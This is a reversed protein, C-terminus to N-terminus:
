AIEAAQRATAATPELSSEQAPMGCFAEYDILADISPHDGCLPCAGRRSLRVQRFAMDMGEFLVLRGVLSEGIGVLLKITEFAMMSGVIGPLVGFVGAEACSPVAGAPPPTEFLCRYCGTGKRSDFMTLMGEFRYISGHVLPKGLFHSADNALYRTPFNDAGDVIVDYDRFVELANESNLHIRHRVVEVDPNVRQIADAASDVKLRGVDATGHLIQRQLNSADVVDFDVLGIRGVGAAALYYAAPSGLGGAGILLVSSGLLRRQGAGGVEPLILHRSYRSVQDPTLTVTREAM